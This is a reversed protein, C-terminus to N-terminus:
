LLVRISVSVYAYASVRFCDDACVYVCMCVGEVVRVKMMMMM